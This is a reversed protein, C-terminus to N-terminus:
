IAKIAHRICVKHLIESKRSVAVNRRPFELNNKSYLESQVQQDQGIRTILAM